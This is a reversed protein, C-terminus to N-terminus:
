AEMEMECQEGAGILLAPLRWAVIEMGNPREALLGVIKVVRKEMVYLWEFAFRTEM